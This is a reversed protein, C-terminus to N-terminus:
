QPFRSSWDIPPLPTLESAAICRAGAFPGENETSRELLDDAVAFGMLHIKTFMPEVLALVYIWGDNLEAPRVALRYRMPDSSARMLSAKVDLNSGIIDAGGDGETPRQNCVCRQLHYEAPTGHLWVSLYYQGLQGVVQDEFLRDLRDQEDRIHSAGGLCALKAHGQCDRLAQASIQFTLM